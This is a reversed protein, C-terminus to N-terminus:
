NANLKEKLEDIQAQQEKIAAILYGFLNRENLVPTQNSADNESFWAGRDSDNIVIGQYRRASEDDTFRYSHLPLAMVADLAGAGDWPTIDTKLEAYSTQAGVVTGSGDNANTPLAASNIRLNGSADPWIHHALGARNSLTLFGASPTSANSNRGINIHPGWGTGCDAPTAYFMATNQNTPTTATVGVGAAPAFTQAGTFTNANALIAFKNVNVKRDRDTSSASLDTIELWDGSAPDTCENLQERLGM